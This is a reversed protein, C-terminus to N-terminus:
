EAETSIFFLGLIVPLLHGIRAVHLPFHTLSFIGFAILMCFLSVTEKSRKSTFFRIFVFYVLLIFIILGLYGTEYWLWLYENHPHDWFDFVNRGEAKLQSAIDRSVGREAYWVDGRKIVRLTTNDFTRKFYHISHSNEGSRFDDLGYGIPHRHIDHIAKVWMDLRSKQMGMPNDYFVVYGIGGLVLPILLMWVFIRKKFWLYILPCVCGALMVASSKSFVMPILLLFWSWSFSLVALLAITLYMGMHAELAFISCQPIAGNPSNLVTAGRMDFGNMQLLLYFATFIGVGIIGRLVFEIDKKNLTRIVTLYVCFGYFFNLFIHLGQNYMLYLCWMWLGFVSLVINMLSLKIPKNNIFLGAFIIIMSSLQYFWEQFSRLDVGIKYALPNAILYALFLWKM